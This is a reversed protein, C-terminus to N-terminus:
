SLGHKEMRYLFAKYPLGLWRAAQTRNGQHRQIAQALITKEFAEWNIGEEPIVFQNPTLTKEQLQSLLEEEDGLVVFREVMNGLERVNGPWSYDLLKKKLSKSLMPQSVKHRKSFTELFHDLLIPLDEKRERLAPMTIPVVNLRYFLDERFAKDAVREQLDRHTAALVRVDLPMEQTAGVRVITGEQLFRLLKTQLALGLEGIEDLFVTGGNAAELKGIQKQTAGTFAGKEAGFLEAEALTEPIAGCNIAIFNNDKRPSLRHLARAALEKGTGSEGSILVTADTASIKELRNFVKQMCASRGIIGELREQQSLRQSLHRNEQKLLKAQYAKAISLLLQTQQFPKTLYDDAGNQMAVVANEITGYATAIVFGLALDQKRVYELITMGNSKALKWDSFVVDFTQEQILAIAASANDSVEVDHGETELIEQILQRQGPEDEVLLIKIKDEIM